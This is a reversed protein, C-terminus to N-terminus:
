FSQSADTEIRSPDTASVAIFIPAADGICNNAAPEYAIQALLHMDDDELTNDHVWAAYGGVRSRFDHWSGLRELTTEYAAGPDRFRSAAAAIAPIETILWPSPYTIFTETRVPCPRVRYDEESRQLPRAIPVAKADSSHRYTRVLCGPKEYLESELAWCLFVTFFDFPVDPHEPCDNLNIQCIFDYPHRDPGIPWDEGAEFYPNGGFHSSTAPFVHDGPMTQGAILGTARKGAARVAADLAAQEESKLRSM